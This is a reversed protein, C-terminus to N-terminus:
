RVQGVLLRLLPVRAYGRRNLDTIDKRIEIKVFKGSDANKYYRMYIDSFKSFTEASLLEQVVENSIRIFVDEDSATGMNLEVDGREPKVINFREGMAMFELKFFDPGELDAASVVDGFMYMLRNRLSDHYPIAGRIEEVAAEEVIAEITEPAKVPAPKEEVEPEEAVEAEEVEEASKDEPKEEKEGKFFRRIREM